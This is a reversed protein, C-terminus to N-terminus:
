RASKRSRVVHQGILFDRLRARTLKDLVKRKGTLEPYGVIEVVQGLDEHFRRITKETFFRLHTRDLLGSDEYTWDANIALDYLLKWNRVNPTSTLLIGGPELCQMWVKMTRWPDVLHEVVDAALIFDFSESVVDIVDLNGELVLDLHEHAKAAAAPSIEVGVVRAAIGLDKLFRGTHGEGCGLELVRMGKRDPFFPILDKRTNDYYGKSM